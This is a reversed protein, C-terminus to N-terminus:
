IASSPKGYRKEVELIKELVEFTNFLGSKKIELVYSKVPEILETQIYDPTYGEFCANECRVRLNKATYFLKGAEESKALLISSERVTGHLTSAMKEIDSLKYEKLGALILRNCMDSVSTEAQKTLKGILHSVAPTVRVRLMNSRANHGSQRKSSKEAYYNRRFEEKQEETLKVGSKAEWTRIEKEVSPLDDTWHKAM